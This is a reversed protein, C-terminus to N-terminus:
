MDTMEEEGLVSPEVHRHFVDIGGHLIDRPTEVAAILNESIATQARGAATARGSSNQRQRQTTLVLRLNSLEGALPQQRLREHRIVARAMWIVISIEVAGEIAALGHKLEATIIPPL